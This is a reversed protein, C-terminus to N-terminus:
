VALQLAVRFIVFEAPKLFAVGVQCVLRGHDIDNQTMTSRDCKVFFAEEPKAGLLAGNRWENYLFHTISERLRDWLPEGNAEFVVWQTGRDLSAQLYNFYRRQNVYKWEPDSSLTRAGWVRLGRGEFFRLCNIGEPNLVDQEAKNIPREFRVAGRVVENAPANHVGQEFDHRAYIGCVFPSAPLVVERGEVRSVIWPHYLAAHSSDFARRYAQVNAMTSGAPADLVAIRHAGPREAHAILAHAMETNTNGPAAVISVDALPEIADLTSAVYLRKGGENFFARVAQAMAAHTEGDQFCDFDSVSTLLPSVTRSGITGVFATTHTAVPEIHKSRFSAEEVYVGPALYKPMHTGEFDVWPRNVLV